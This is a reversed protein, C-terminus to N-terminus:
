SSQAIQCWLDNGSGPQVIRLLTINERNLNITLDSSGNLRINGPGNHRVVVARNTPDEGFLVVIDGVRGGNINDLNDSAAGGETDVTILSSSLNIAGGSIVQKTAKFNLTSVSAVNLIELPGELTKPGSETPM